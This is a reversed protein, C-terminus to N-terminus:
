NIVRSESVLLAQDFSMVASTERITRPLAMPVQIAMTSDYENAKTHIVCTCGLVIHFPFHELFNASSIKINLRIQTAVEGIEM